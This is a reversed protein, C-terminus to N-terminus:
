FIDNNLFLPSKVKDSVEKEFHMSRADVEHSQQSLLFSMKGRLIGTRWARPNRSGCLYNWVQIFIGTVRSMNFQHHCMLVIWNTALITTGPNPSERLNRWSHKKKGSPNVEERRAKLSCCLELCWQLSLVLSLSKTSFITYCKKLTFSTVSLLVKLFLTLQIM